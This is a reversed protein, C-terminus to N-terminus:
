SAAPMWHRALFTPSSQTRFPWFHKMVFADHALQYTTNAVVSGVWRWLAIMAKM